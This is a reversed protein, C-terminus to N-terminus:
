MGGSQIGAEGGFRAPIRCTDLTNNCTSESGIYACRIDKFRFPCFNTMYRDRPFRNITESSPGLTFEVWQEDYKTETVLFDLECEPLTNELNAANVIYLNIEADVFGGYRQLYTQIMGNCNSIKLSLAPITKGDEAYDGIQIPFATFINGAWTIDETNNVLRIKEELEKYAIEALILFPADGELKNKELTAAASWIQM